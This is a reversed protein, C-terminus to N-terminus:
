DLSIWSPTEVALGFGRLVRLNQEGTAIEEESPTAENPNGTELRAVKYVVEVATAHSIAATMTDSDVEELLERVDCSGSEGYLYAVLPETDFVYGYEDM